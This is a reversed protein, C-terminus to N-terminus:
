QNMSQRCIDCAEAAPSCPGTPERCREARAFAIFQLECCCVAVYQLVSCNMPACQLERCSVAASELGSCSVAPSQPVRSWPVRRERRREARAM